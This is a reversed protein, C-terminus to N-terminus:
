AKSNKDNEQQQRKQRSGYVFVGVLSSISTFALLSGATTSAFLAIIGSLLLAGMGIIFGLWLGLRSDGCSSKVLREEQTRRHIAEEEAMKIIRDASGKVVQEYAQLQGAPPLPGSYAIATLVAEKKEPPLKEIRQIVQNTDFQESDTEPEKNLQPEKVKSKSQKKPTNFKEPM